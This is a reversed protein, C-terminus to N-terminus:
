DFLTPALAKIRYSRRHIPSYGYKRIAEIHTKSNYGKNREFGYNPYEKAHARMLRDRTVKAVISAAGDAKIMTEIGGVGFSGNGDFLYRQADLTAQIERLSAAICKSLGLTDIDNADHIVVHYRATKIITEYLAERRKESLKKSDRLNEVPSTLIVGAVVLEGAFPGRGAEDIGCLSNASL